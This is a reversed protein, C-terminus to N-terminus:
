NKCKNCTPGTAAHVRQGFRTPRIARVLDRELPLPEGDVQSALLEACISAFVLGRAGFGDCIWLGEGALPGVIPLRDPSMPRFSVRGDLEAADLSKGFGPLMMELRFLNEVHEAPLPTAANTASTEVITSTAGACRLGDVPPTVYGLRTVVIDMPPTVTAALHSVLGRGARVPLALEPVLAPAGIGNALVVWRCAGAILQRDADFLRWLSGTAREMRTSTRRRLPVDFDTSCQGPVSSPRTSGARMRPVVLRGNRGALRRPTAPKTASSSASLLEAHFSNPLRGHATAHRRPTADRALHLVGTWPRWRVAHGDRLRASTAAAM